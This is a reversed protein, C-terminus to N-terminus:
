AALREDHAQCLRQLHHRQINNLPSEQTLIIQLLKASWNTLGRRQRLLQLASFQEIPWFRLGTDKPVPVWWTGDWPENAMALEREDATM